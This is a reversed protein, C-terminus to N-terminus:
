GLLVPFPSSFVPLRNSIAHLSNKFDNATAKKRTYGAITPCGRWGPTPCNESCSGQCPRFFFFLFLFNIADKAREPSENM